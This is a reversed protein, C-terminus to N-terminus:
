FYPPTITFILIVEKDTKNCFKHRTYPPIRVSDGANMIFINDEINVELNGEILYSVERLKNISWFILQLNKLCYLTSAINM